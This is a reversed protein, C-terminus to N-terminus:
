HPFSPSRTCPGRSGHCHAQGQGPLQTHRRTHTQMAHVHTYWTHAGACAWTHLPMYTQKKVIKDSFVGEHDQSLENDLPKKKLAKMLLVGSLHETGLPSTLAAELYFLSIFLCACLLCPALSAGGQVVWTHACRQWADPSASPRHGWEGLHLIEGEKQIGKNGCVAGVSPFHLLRRHGWLPRGRERRQGRAAPGVLYAGDKRKDGKHESSSKRQLCSLSYVDTDLQLWYSFIIHLSPFEYGLVTPKQPPSISTTKICLM